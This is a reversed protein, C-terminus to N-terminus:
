QVFVEFYPKGTKSSFKLRVSITKKKSDAIRLGFDLITGSLPKREPVIYTYKNGMDVVAIHISIVWNVARKENFIMFEM